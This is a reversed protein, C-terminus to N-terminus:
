RLPWKRSATTRVSEWRNEYKIEEVSKGQLEVIPLNKYFKLKSPTKEGGKEM